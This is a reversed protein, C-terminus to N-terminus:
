EEASELTKKLEKLSDWRPDIKEKTCICAHHNLNLGCSVCLGKCTDSCVKKFPINLMITDRVYPKLDIEVDQPPLYMIHDDKDVNDESTFLVNFDQNIAMEFLELCRDCNLNLKTSIKGSFTYSEASQYASVHVSIDDALEPIDFEDKNGTFDFLTEDVSINSILIKM